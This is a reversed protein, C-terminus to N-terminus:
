PSLGRGVCQQNTVIIVLYNNENLLKIAECVEAIFHIGVLKLMIAKLCRKTLSATRDLFVIPRKESFLVNEVIECHHPGNCYSMGPHPTVEEPVPFLYDCYAEM